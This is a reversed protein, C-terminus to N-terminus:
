TKRLPFDASGFGGGRKTSFEVIKKKFGERLVACCLAFSNKATALYKIPLPLYTISDILMRKSSFFDGTQIIKNNNVLVM